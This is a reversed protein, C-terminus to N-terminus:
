EIVSEVLGDFVQEWEPTKWRWRKSDWWSSHDGTKWKGELVKLVKEDGGLTTGEKEMWQREAKEKAKRVVM